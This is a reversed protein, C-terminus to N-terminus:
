PTTGSAMAWALPRLEVVSDVPCTNFIGATCHNLMGRPGTQGGCNGEGYGPRGMAVSVTVDSSVGVRVSAVRGASVGVSVRVGTGEAVAVTVEVGIGDSVGVSVGGGVKSGGTVGVHVGFAPTM